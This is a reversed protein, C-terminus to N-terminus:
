LIRIQINPADFLRALDDPETRYHALVLLGFLERLLPEDELLDAGDVARYTVIAPTAETVLQDVAPAADLLLARFAWVEIPDGAAYRIPAALSRETLTHESNTLQDKFRVAFGRGTGEYGHITTTFAVRDAALYSVLLPVGIAAAEDVILVDPISPDVAAPPRYTIRGGSTLSLERSHDDPTHDLANVKNLLETARDFGEQASRYGPATITVQEGELALCAAAIGAVSSKGRGRDAELVVASPGTQLQEFSQLSDVQDQTLCAEYASIPFSADTPVVIQPDVLRPAPDTLGDRLVEGSDVDVIAIGPHARLTQVFRRRFQGTVASVDFPPVALREDAPDRQRPWADLSPCALVLLGGGDVAGVVRGVANPSLGAHADIVLAPHTTGLLSGAHEPAVRNLGLGERDSVLPIRAPDVDLTSLVQSLTERGTTRGGALVLLRRENVAGAESILDAVLGGIM